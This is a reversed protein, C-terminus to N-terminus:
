QQHGALDGHGAPVFKDGVRRDAIGNQIADHMAGMADLELSRTQALAVADICWGFAVTAMTARALWGWGWDWQMANDRYPVPNGRDGRVSGYLCSERM